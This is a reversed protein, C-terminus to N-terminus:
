YSKLQFRHFNELVSIINKGGIPNMSHVIYRPITEAKKLCFDTLWKACDYGTKETFTGDTYYNSYHGDIDYMSPRYHEDALDHDFSIIDPFEGQEYRETITQIFELYNRVIVFETDWYFAKNPMYNCCDKPNRIDDLFLNYKKM